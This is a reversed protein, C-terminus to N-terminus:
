VGVAAPRVSEPYTRLKQVPQQLLQQGHRGARRVRHRLRRCRLHVCPRVARRDKRRYAQHQHEELDRGAGAGFLRQRQAQERRGGALDDARGFLECRGARVIRVGHHEAPGATGLQLRSCAGAADRGKGADLGAAMEQGARQHHHRHQRQQGGRQRHLDPERHRRGGARCFPLQQLACGAGATKDRDYSAEYKWPPMLGDREEELAPTNLEVGANFLFTDIEQPNAAMLVDANYESGYVERAIVDWTDGSKTTYM